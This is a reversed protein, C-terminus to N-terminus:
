LRPDQVITFIQIAFTKLPHISGKTPLEDWWDKADAKGGVFLGRCLHYEKLDCLLKSVTESNWKWRQAIELTIKCFNQFTHSKAAQSIALQRCLPHLFLALSHLNTNM